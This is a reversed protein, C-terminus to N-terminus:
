ELVMLTKPYPNLHPRLLQMKLFGEPLEIYWPILVLIVIAGGVGKMHVNKSDCNENEIKTSHGTRKLVFDPAM